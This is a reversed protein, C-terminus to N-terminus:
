KIMELSEIPFYARWNDSIITTGSKSPDEREVWWFIWGSNIRRGANYKGKGLMSEVIEKVTRAGEISGSITSLCFYSM